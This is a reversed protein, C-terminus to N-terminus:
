AFDPNWNNQYYHQPQTGNYSVHIRSNSIKKKLNWEDDPIDDFFGLSEEFALKMSRENTRSASLSLAREPIFEVNKGSIPLYATTIHNSGILIMGVLAIASVKLIPSTGSGNQNLERTKM